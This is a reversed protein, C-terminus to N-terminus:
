SDLIEELMPEIGIYKIDEVLHQASFRNVDWAIFHLINAAIENVVYSFGSRLVLYAFSAFPDYAVFTRGCIDQYSKDISQIIYLAHEESTKM